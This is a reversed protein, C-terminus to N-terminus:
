SKAVLDDPPEEVKSLTKELLWQHHDQLPVKRCKIAMLLRGQDELFNYYIRPFFNSFTEGVAALKTHPKTPKKRATKKQSPSTKKNNNLAPLTHFSTNHEPDPLRKVEGLHSKNGLGDTGVQTASSKHLRVCSICVQVYVCVPVPSFDSDMQLSKNDAQILDTKRRHVERLNTGIVATIPLVSQQQTAM